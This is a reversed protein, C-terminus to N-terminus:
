TGNKLLDYAINIEKLREEALKRLGSSLSGLRDPHFEKAKERYAGQLQAKSYSESLEMLELAYQRSMAESEPPRSRADSKGYEILRDIAEAQYGLLSMADRIFREEDANMPGDANALHVLFLTADDLFNADGNSAHLFNRCTTPTHTETTKGERFANRAAELQDNTLGWERHASDVM